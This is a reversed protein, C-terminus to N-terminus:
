YAAHLPCFTLIDQSGANCSKKMTRQICPAPTDIVAANWEPAANACAPESEDSVPASLPVSDGTIGGTCNLIDAISLPKNQESSDCLLPPSKM